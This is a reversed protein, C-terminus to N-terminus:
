CQLTSGCCAAVARRARLKPTQSEDGERLRSLSPKAAHAGAVAEYQGCSTHGLVDVASPVILMMNWQWPLRSSRSAEDGERRCPRCVPCRQRAANPPSLM